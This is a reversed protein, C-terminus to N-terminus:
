GGYEWPSAQITLPKVPMRCQADVVEMIVVAHDGGSEIIRRVRCEVWAGLRTLIPVGTIGDAFAEGNIQGDSVRTPAFFRAAVDQHDVGLVHVAAVGSAALCKFVNSGPRVAAMILPPRFSIQSIWTVTAGGYDLGHRSTMIYMGNTFQRLTRRRMHVDMATGTAATASM